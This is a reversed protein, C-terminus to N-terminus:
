PQEQTSRRAFMILANSRASRCVESWFPKQDPPVMFRIIPTVAPTRISLTLYLLILQHYIAQTRAPTLQEDVNILVGLTQRQQEITVDLDDKSVLKWPKTLIAELVRKCQSAAVTCVKQAKVSQHISDTSSSTDM